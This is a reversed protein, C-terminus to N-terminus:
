PSNLRCAASQITNMVLSRFNPALESVEQIRGNILIEEHDLKVIRCDGNKQRRRFDFCVPDYDVDAGRGFQLYGNPMLTSYLNRDRRIETLLPTLDGAPENALLRCIVLDLEAWRYNLILSEYLSPFRTSHLGALGLNHYLAELSLPTTTIQRPQWDCGDPQTLLAPSAQCDYLDDLVGFTDVFRALLAADEERTDM